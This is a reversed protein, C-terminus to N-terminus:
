PGWVDYDGDNDGGGLGDVFSYNGHDGPGYEDQVKPITLFGSEMISSSNFDIRVGGGKTGKKTTIVIAGNQGRYGYLAAAAPGM